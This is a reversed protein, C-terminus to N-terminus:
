FPLDTVDNVHGGDNPISVPNPQPQSAFFADAMADMNVQPASDASGVVDVKFANCNTFWRGNFERSEIDFSVQVLNNEVVKSANDTLKDGFLSFIIQKAYQENTELLFEQKQWANGNKSTGSQIPLVKIIKGEIQM